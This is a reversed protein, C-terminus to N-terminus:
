IVFEELTEPAFLEEVELRRPSLGQEHHYRLFTELTKRNRELGYPWFDPGMLATAEEVEANLWPLMGKLAATESLGQYCLAQAERFAKFLNMATWRNAEYVDRRIAIVHMIPFIGTDRYYQKEVSRFDPFLRKVKLGDYTSPKRATHLADIEGSALMQALTQETGIREVRINPPLNLKLKEDRNPEEEGGTFYTVGDVPVQYHESLIGRIWVPATMQFEPTGIRKGILDRPTEIGADANVYISSHRFFRSPFVPIAVFPREPKSLSVTYSSLSMESVDFERHRLMRFFTEEVVMNLFNLNIGDPRVQGNLLPQVRDYDWCGLTLDLTM